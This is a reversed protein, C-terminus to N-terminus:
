SNFYKVLERGNTKNLELLLFHQTIKLRFSETDILFYELFRLFDVQRKTHNHEQILGLSLFPHVRQLFQFWANQLDYSYTDAYGTAPTGNNSWFVLM